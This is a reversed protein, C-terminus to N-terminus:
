LMNKHTNFLNKILVKSVDVKHSYLQQQSHGVVVVNNNIKTLELVNQILPQLMMVKQFQHLQHLELRKYQKHFLPYM